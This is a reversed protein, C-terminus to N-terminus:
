QAGSMETVLAQVRADDPWARQARRMTEQAQLTLGLKKELRAKWVWADIDGPARAALMTVVDLARDLDDRREYVDAKIRQAALFSATDTTSRELHGLTQDVIDDRKATLAARVRWSYFPAGGSAFTWTSTRALAAAAGDRRELALAIAAAADAPAM